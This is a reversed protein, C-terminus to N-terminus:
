NILNVDRGPASATLDAAVGLYRLGLVASVCAGLRNKTSSQRLHRYQHMLARSLVSLLAKHAKLQGSTASNSFVSSLIVSLKKYIMDTTLKLILRHKTQQLIPHTSDSNLVIFPRTNYTTSLLRFGVSKYM